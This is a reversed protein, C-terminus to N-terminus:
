LLYYEKLVRGDTVVLRNKALGSFVVIKREKKREKPSEKGEEKYSRGEIVTKTKQDRHNIKNISFLTM